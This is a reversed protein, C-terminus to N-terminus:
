ASQGGDAREQSPKGTGQKARLARLRKARQTCANGCYKGYRYVRKATGCVECSIWKPM